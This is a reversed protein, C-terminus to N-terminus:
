CHRMWVNDAIPKWIPRETRCCRVSTICGNGIKRPHGGIQKNLAYKNFCSDNRVNALILPVGAVMPTVVLINQNKIYGALRVSYYAQLNRNLLRLQVLEGVRPKIGPRPFIVSPAIEKFEVWDGTKYTQPSTDMERLLCEGLLSHLQERSAVMGGRAFEIYGNRDYLRWPLPKGLPIDEIPVPQLNMIARGSVPITPM